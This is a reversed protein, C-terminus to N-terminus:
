AQWGGRLRPFIVLLVTSLLTVHTSNLFHMRSSSSGSHLVEDAGPGRFPEVNDKNYNSYYWGVKDDVNPTSAPDSRDPHFPYPSSSRRTSSGDVSSHTSSNPEDLDPVEPAQIRSASVNDVTVSSRQSELYNGNVDYLMTSTRIPPPPTPRRQFEKPQPANQGFDGNQKMLNFIDDLSQQPQALINSGPQESSTIFAETTSAVDKDVGDDYYEYYYQYEPEDEKSEDVYESSTTTFEPETEILNFTTTEPVIKPTGRHAIEVGETNEETSSSTTVEQVQLTPIIRETVEREELNQNRFEELLRQIEAQGEAHDAPPNFGPLSAIPASEKTEPVEDEYVYEYTYDPKPDNQLQGGLIDGFTPTSTDENNTAFLNTLLSGPNLVPPRDISSSDPLNGPVAQYSPGLNNPRITSTSIPTFSTSEPFISESSSVENNAPSTFQLSPHHLHPYKNNPDTLDSSDAVKFGPPLPTMASDLEPFASPISSGPQIQGQNPSFMPDKTHPRFLPKFGNVDDQSSGFGLNAGPSPRQGISHSPTNRNSVASNFDNDSPLSVQDHPHAHIPTHGSMPMPYGNPVPHNYQIAPIYGKPFYEEENAGDLPFYRPNEQNSISGPRLPIIPNTPHQYNFMENNESNGSKSVHRKETAAENTSSSTARNAFSEALKPLLFGAAKLGTEVWIPDLFDPGRTQDTEPPIVQNIPAKNSSQQSSSSSESAQNANDGKRGIPLLGSSLAPSLAFNLNLPLKPIPIGFISFVGDDEDSKEGEDPDKIEAYITPTDGPVKDNSALNTAPGLNIDQVKTEVRDITPSVTPKSSTSSVVQGDEDYYVYYYEYLEGDLGSKEDGQIEVVDVDITNTSAEQTM